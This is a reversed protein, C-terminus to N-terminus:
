ACKGFTFLGGSNMSRDACLVSPCSTISLLSMFRNRLLKKKSDIIGCYASLRFDKLSPELKVPGAAIQILIMDIGIPGQGMLQIFKSNNVFRFYLPAHPSPIQLLSPRM